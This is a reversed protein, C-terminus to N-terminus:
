KEEEFQRKWARWFLWGGAVALGEIVFKAM